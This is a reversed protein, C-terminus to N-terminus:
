SWTPFRPAKGWASSITPRVSSSKQVPVIACRARNAAWTSAGSIACMLASDFLTAHARGGAVLLHQRSDPRDLDAAWEGPWSM